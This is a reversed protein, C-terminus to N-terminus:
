FNTTKLLASSGNLLGACSGKLLLVSSGNLLFVSSGKLLDVSSGKLSGKPEDLAQPDDDPALSGNLATGTWFDLVKLSSAKLSQLGAGLLDMFGRCFDSVKTEWLKDLGQALGTSM